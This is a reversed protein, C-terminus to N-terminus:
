MKLRRLDHLEGFDCWVKGFLGLGTMRLEWENDKRRVSGGDVEVRREVRERVRWRGWRMGFGSSFELERTADLCNKICCNLDCDSSKLESRSSYILFNLRLQLPLPLKLAPRFWWLRGSPVSVFCCLALCTRTTTADTLTTAWNPFLENPVFARPFVDCARLRSPLPQTPLDRLRRVSRTTSPSASPPKSFNANTSHHSLHISHLRPPTKGTQVTCFIIPPYRLCGM